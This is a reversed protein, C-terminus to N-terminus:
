SRTMNRRATADRKRVALYSPLTAPGPLGAIAGAGARGWPDSVVMVAGDTAATRM